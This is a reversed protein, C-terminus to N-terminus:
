SRKWNKSIALRGRGKGTLEYVVRPRGRGESKMQKAVVFGLDILKLTLYRSKFNGASVANLADIVAFKNALTPKRGRTLTVTNM